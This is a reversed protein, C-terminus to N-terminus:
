QENLIENLESLLEQADSHGQAAAKELWFKAQEFDEEVGEGKIYCVGLDHQADANGQEAAKTLTAIDSQTIPDSQSDNAGAANISFSVCLAAGALFSFIRNMKELKKPPTFQPQSECFYMM